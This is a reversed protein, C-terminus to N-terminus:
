RRKNILAIAGIGLLALTAPEPVEAVLTNFDDLQGADGLYKINFSADIRMGEFEEGNEWLTYDGINFSAYQVESDLFWFGFEGRINETETSQWEGAVEDLIWENDHEMSSHFGYSIGFLDWNTNAQPPATWTSGETFIFDFSARISFNGDKDYRRMEANTQVPTFNRGMFGQEIYFDFNGNSEKPHMHSETTGDEYTWEHVWEEQNEAHLHANFGELSIEQRIEPSVIPDSYGGSGSGSGNSPVSEMVEAASTGIGVFVIVLVAVIIKAHKM